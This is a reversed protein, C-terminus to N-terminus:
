GLDSGCRTGDRAPHVSTAGPKATAGFVAQESIRAGTSAPVRSAGSSSRQITPQAYVGGRQSAPMAYTPQSGRTSAIQERELYVKKDGGGGDGGSNIGTGSGAGRSGSPRASATPNAVGAPTFFGYPSSTPANTSPTAAAAAAPPRPPTAGADVGGRGSSTSRAPMQMLQPEVYHSPRASSQGSSRDVGQGHQRQAPPPGRSPAGAGGAANNRAAMAHQQAPHPRPHRNSARACVHRTLHTVSRARV